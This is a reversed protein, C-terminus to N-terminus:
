PCNSEVSGRLSYTYDTGTQPSVLYGCQVRNDSTTKRSTKSILPYDTQGYGYM